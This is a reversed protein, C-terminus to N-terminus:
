SRTKQWRAVIGWFGIGASAGILLGVFTRSSFVFTANGGFFDKMSGVIAGLVAFSLTTGFVIVRYLSREHPSREAM